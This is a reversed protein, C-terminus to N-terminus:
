KEVNKVCVSNVVTYNWELINKELQGWPSFLKLLAEMAGEMRDNELDRKDRFM